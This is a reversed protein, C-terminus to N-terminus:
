RGAENSASVAVQAEVLPAAVLRDLLAVEECFALLTFSVVVALKPLKEILTM